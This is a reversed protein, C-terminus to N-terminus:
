PLRDCLMGWGLDEFDQRTGVDLHRGRRRAYLVVDGAPLHLVIGNAGGDIFAPFCDLIVHSIEEGSLGTVRVADRGVGVDVVGPTAAVLEERRQSGDLGMAQKRGPGAAQGNGTTKKEPLM